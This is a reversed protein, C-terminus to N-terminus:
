ITQFLNNSRPFVQLLYSIKNINIHLQLTLFTGNKPLFISLLHDKEINMLKQHFNIMIIKISLHKPIKLMSNINFIIEYYIIVAM